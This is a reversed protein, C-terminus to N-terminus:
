EKEVTIHGSVTQIDIEYAPDSGIEFQEKEGLGETNVSASVGQELKFNISGSVTEIDLDGTLRKINGEISGSVTELKGEGSLHKVNIQGSVTRLYIEKAQLLAESSISGSVAEVNLEDLECDTLFSAKGSSTNVNLTEKYETPLMVEIVHTKDSGIRFFNFVESQYARSITLKHSSQEETFLHKKDPDETFERVLMMEGVYFSIELETNQVDFTIEDIGELEFTKEKAPAEQHSSVIEGVPIPEEKIVEEITEEQITERNLLRNIYFNDNSAVKLIMGVICLGIGVLLIQEIVKEKKFPEM